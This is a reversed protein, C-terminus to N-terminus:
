ECRAMNPTQMAMMALVKLPSPLGITAESANLPTAKLEVYQRIRHSPSANMRAPKLPFSM